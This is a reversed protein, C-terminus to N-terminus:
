AIMRADSSPPPTAIRVSTLFAIRSPLFNNTSDYTSIHIHSRATPLPMFEKQACLRLPQGNPSPIFNHVPSTMPRASIYTLPPFLTNWWRHHGQCPGALLFLRIGVEVGSQAANTIPMSLIRQTAIPVLPRALLSGPLIQM